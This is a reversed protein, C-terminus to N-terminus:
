TVDMPGFSGAHGADRIMTLGKEMDIDPWMGLRDFAVEGSPWNLVRFPQKSQAIEVRGGAGFVRYACRAIQLYDQSESHVIDWVGTVGERWAQVLLRAADRVHMFNRPGGSAPMNLDMGRSAYAVIRGFWPQHRCCRGAVDYLQ